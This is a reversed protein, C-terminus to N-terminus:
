HISPTNKIHRTMNRLRRITKSFAKKSTNNRRNRKVFNTKAPTSEHWLFVGPTKWLNGAAERDDILVAEYDTTRSFFYKQKPRCFIMVIDKPQALGLLQELEAILDEASEVTASPPVSLTYIKGGPQLFHARVWAEKGLEASIRYRMVSPCGTLFIPTEDSAERIAEWLDMAGAMPELGEFFNPIDPDSLLPWLDKDPIEESSRGGTREQVGREFDCFVGDMDLFLRIKSM